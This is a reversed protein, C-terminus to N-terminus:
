RGKRAPAAGASMSTLQQKAQPAEDSHPFQQVVARFSAIAATNKKDKKLAMGKMYYASPTTLENKPYQEIAADYAAVAETLKGQSYYINGINYQAGIANGDNPYVRLFERFGSLALELKGADEDRKANTFLTQPTPPPASAAGPATASDAGPPPAAPAQMLKVRDLIEGLTQGQRNVAVQLDKYSSQLNSVDDSIGAVKTSIGSVSNLQDSLGRLATQLTQMMGTNLNNVSSNTKNATDLAQQVMTQLAVVSGAKPDLLSKQLATVQDSLQAVDRQLDQMEKSAAAPASVPALLMAGIFM